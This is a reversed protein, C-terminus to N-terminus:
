ADAEERELDRLCKGLRVDGERYIRLLEPTGLRRDARFGVWDPFQGRAFRWLEGLEERPENLIISTRYKWIPRLAWIVEVPTQSNTEDRWVLAGSWIEYFPQTFQEAWCIRNLHAAHEALTRLLDFSSGDSAM